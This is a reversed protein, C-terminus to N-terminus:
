LMLFSQRCEAVRTRLYTEGFLKQYLGQGSDTTLLMDIWTDKSYRNAYEIVASSLLGVLSKPDSSLAYDLSLTEEDEKSFLLASKVEDGELVFFSEPQGSLYATADGGSLEEIWRCVCNKERGSLRGSPVGTEKGAGPINKVAKAADLLKVRGVPVSIVETEIGMENLFPTLFARDGTDSYKCCIGEKGAERMKEMVTELLFSGIGMRRAEPLVFLTLLRGFVDRDSESWVAVGVPTEAFVAGYAHVNKHFLIHDIDSPIMEAYLKYNDKDISEYRM